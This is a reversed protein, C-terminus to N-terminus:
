RHRVSEVKASGHKPVSLTFDFGVLPGSSIGPREKKRLADLTIHLASEESM